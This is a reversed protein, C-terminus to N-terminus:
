SKSKEANTRPTGPTTTLKPRHPRRSSEIRANLTAVSLPGALLPGSVNTRPRFPGIGLTSKPGPNLPEPWIGELLAPDVDDLRRNPDIYARPFRAALLTAGELPAAGFLDDVMWDEAGRLVLAPVVSQLDSSCVDSSWDSIRM